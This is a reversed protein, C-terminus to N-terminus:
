KWPRMTSGVSYGKFGGDIMRSVGFPRKSVFLFIHKDIEPWWGSLQCGEHLMRVASSAMMPKMGVSPSPAIPDRSKEGSSRLASATLDCDQDHGEHPRMLFKSFSLFSHPPSEASLPSLSLSSSSNAFCIQKLCTNARLQLAIETDSATVRKLLLGIPGAAVFLRGHFSCRNASRSRVCIRARLAILM